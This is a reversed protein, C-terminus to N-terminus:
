LYLTYKECSVVFVPADNKSSNPNFTTKVDQWSFTRDVLLYIDIVVVAGNLGIRKLFANVKNKIPSANTHICKHIQKNVELMPGINSELWGPSSQISGTWHIDTGKAKCYRMSCKISRNVKSRQSAHPGSNPNPNSEEGFLPLWRFGDFVKM